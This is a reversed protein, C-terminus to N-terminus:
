LEDLVRYHKADEEDMEVLKYVRKCVPCLLACCCGSDCPNYLRGEFKTAGEKSFNCRPCYVEPPNEFHRRMNDPM